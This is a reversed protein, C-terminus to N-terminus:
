SKPRSSPASGHVVGCNVCCFRENELRDREICTRCLDVLNLGSDAKFINDLSNLEDFGYFTKSLLPIGSSEFASRTQGELDHTVVVELITVQGDSERIVLDPRTGPVLTSDELAVTAGPTAANRKMAVGIIPEADMSDPPDRYVDNRDRCSSCVLSLTYERGAEVAKNFSQAILRQAMQHLAKDPVCEVADPLHRFHWTRLTGQVPRM